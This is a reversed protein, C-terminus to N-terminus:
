LSVKPKPKPPVHLTPKTVFDSKDFDLLNPNSAHIYNIPKPLRRPKSGDSDGALGPAPPVPGVGHSAPGLGSHAPGPEAPPETPIKRYSRYHETPIPVGSQKIQLTEILVPNNQLHTDYNLVYVPNGIFDVELGYLLQLLYQDYCIQSYFVVGRVSQRTPRTTSTHSRLDLPRPNSDRTPGILM